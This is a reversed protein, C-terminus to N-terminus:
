AAERVADHVRIMRWRGSRQHRSVEFTRLSGDAVSVAQVRWIEHDVVGAGSGRRVRPEEAWWNRREYWRVPPAAVKFDQDQWQLAEPVGDASCSVEIGQTFLGM